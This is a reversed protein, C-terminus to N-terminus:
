YMLILKMHEYSTPLSWIPLLAKDENSIMVRIAELDLIIDNLISLHDSIRKGKEMRLTHFQEKLYLRNSLSKAHYMQELKEWLGKPTLIGFVNALINKVLCLTITSTAKLNLEEWDEDSVSSKPVEYRAFDEGSATTPKSKLAKHLRSKILLDKVQVKWLGFNIRGDFKEVDFKMVSMKTALSGDVRIGSTPFFGLILRPLIDVLITFYVLFFLHCM